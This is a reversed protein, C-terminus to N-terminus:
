MELGWAGREGNAVSKRHGTLRKGALVQLNSVSSAGKLGGQAGSKPRRAIISM